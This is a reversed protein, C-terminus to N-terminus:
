RKRTFKAGARVVGNSFFKLQMDDYPNWSLRKQVPCSDLFEMDQKTIEFDFVNANEAIREATESKPLVVIGHQLAWRILIQATSKKYKNALEKLKKDNLFKGQTLPSYAEVLIDRERCYELLEKQYLFPHFEVQNVAPKIEVKELLEELHKETFNSVGIAKAKGDRYIKELAKYSELRLNNVPFHLLLLDVYDLKMRELSDEVSKLTREYGFNSIEVKTTVFQEDRPVRSDRMAKAVDAENGYYQATDIHRYGSEIAKLVCEYTMKGPPIKWVGFGLYPIEYGNNLKAKSTTQLM